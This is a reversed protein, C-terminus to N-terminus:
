LLGAMCGAGTAMCGVGTAMCGIGSDMCGVGIMLRGALGAIGDVKNMGSAM